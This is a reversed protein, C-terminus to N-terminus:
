ENGMLWCPDGNGSCKSAPIRSASWNRGPFWTTSWVKVWAWGPSVRGRISRRFTGLAGALPNSMRKEQWTRRCYCSSSPAMDPGNGNRPRNSANSGDLHEWGCPTTCGNVARLRRPADDMWSWATGEEQLLEVRPSIANDSLRYGVMVGATASEVGRNGVVASLRTGSLGFLNVLIRWLGTAHTRM